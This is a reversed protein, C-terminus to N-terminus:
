TLLIAADGFIFIHNTTQSKDTGTGAGLDMGNGIVFGIFSRLSYDFDEFITGKCKYKYGLHRLVNM